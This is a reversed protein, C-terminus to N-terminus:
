KWLKLHLGQGIGWKMLRKVFPDNLQRLLWKTSSKKRYKATKVRVKVRSKAVVM